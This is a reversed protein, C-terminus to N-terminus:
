DYYTMTGQNNIMYTIFEKEESTTLWAEIADVFFNNFEIKTSVKTCDIGEKIPYRPDNIYVRALAENIVTGVMLADEFDIVKLEVEKDGISTNKSRWMINAPRLDM